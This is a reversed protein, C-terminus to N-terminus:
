GGTGIIIVDETKTITESSTVQKEIAKSIDAETAGAAILADKVADIIGQSSFTCGAITDVAISTNEIIQAPLKDFAPDSIGLTENHDKFNISIIADSSVEVVATIDGNLGKGTGEYTGPNFIGAEAVPEESVQKSSCGTFATIIMLLCLLLSLFKKM